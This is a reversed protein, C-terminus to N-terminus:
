MGIDDLWLKSITLFFFKIGAQEMGIDPERLLAAQKRGNNKKMNARVFLLSPPIPSSTVMLGALAWALATLILYAPPLGIPVAREPMTPLALM